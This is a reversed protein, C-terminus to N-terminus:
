RRVHDHHPIEATDAMSDSIRNLEYEACVATIWGHGPDSESARPAPGSPPLQILGRNRGELMDLLTEGALSGYGINDRRLATISPRLLTALQSDDWSLVSLQEPVAIGLELAATLGSAAMVDSGYVIATPPEPGTLLTETHAAASPGTYDGEVTRVTMGRVAAARRLGRRRGREHMFETAGSVHAVNRHGLEHLHEAAAEADAGQDTWLTPMRWDRLPGGCLVAPIGMQRVQAVRPDKFREDLLIVGDIRREGWWRRYTRIEEDPHDGIVRLLLSSGREALVKELGALLHVFFTEFTLLEPPRSLVLGVVGARAGSLARASSSPYWGLQEAARLVRRRTEAGVGPRGTLAYSVAAKSLGLQAAIDSITVRGQPVASTGDGDNSNPV